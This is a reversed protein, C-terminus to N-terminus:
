WLADIFSCSFLPRAEGRACCSDNHPRQIIRWLLQECCSGCTNSCADVCAVAVTAVVVNAVGAVHLVLSVGHWCCVSRCCRCGSNRLLLGGNVGALSEAAIGHPLELLVLPSM